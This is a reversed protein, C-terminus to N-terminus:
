QCRRMQKDIETNMVRVVERRNEKGKKTGRNGASGDSPPAIAGVASM